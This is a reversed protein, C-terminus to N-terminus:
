MEIQIECIQGNFISPTGEQSNNDAASQQVPYKISPCQTVKFLPKQGQKM